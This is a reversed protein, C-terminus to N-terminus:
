GHSVGLPSVPRAFQATRAKGGGERGAKKRRDTSAPADSRGLGLPSESTESARVGDSARFATPTRFSTESTESTKPTM